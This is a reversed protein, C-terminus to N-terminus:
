QEQLFPTDKDWQEEIALFMEGDSRVRVTVHMAPSCDTADYVPWTYITSSALINNAINVTGTTAPSSQKRAM